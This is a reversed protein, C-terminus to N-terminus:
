KEVTLYNISVVCGRPIKWVSACGSTSSISAALSIVKKGKTILYGVTSCRPVPINDTGEINVWGDVATSDDWVVEVKPYNKM